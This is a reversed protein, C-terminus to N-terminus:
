VTVEKFNGVGKTRAGMQPRPPPQNNRTAPIHEYIVSQKDLHYRCRSNNTHQLNALTAGFNRQEM